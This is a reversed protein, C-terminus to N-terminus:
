SILLMLEEKGHYPLHTFLCITLTQADLCPCSPFPCQCGRDHPMFLTKHNTKHSSPIFLATTHIGSYILPWCLSLVPPKAELVSRLPQPYLETTPLKGLRCLSQTANGDCSFYCFFFFFWFLFRHM